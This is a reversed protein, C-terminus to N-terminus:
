QSKSSYGVNIVHVDFLVSSKLSMSTRHPSIVNFELSKRTCFSITMKKFIMKKYNKSGTYNNMIVGFSVLFMDLLIIIYINLAAAAFEM